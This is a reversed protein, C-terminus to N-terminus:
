ARWWSSLSVGNRGELPCLSSYFTPLSPVVLLRAFAVRLHEFRDTVSVTSSCPLPVSGLARGARSLASEISSFPFMTAVHHQVPGKKQERPVMTPSASSRSTSNRNSSLYLCALSPVFLSPSVFISFDM